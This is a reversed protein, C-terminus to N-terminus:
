LVKWKLLFKKIKKTLPNKKEIQIEKLVKLFFIFAIKNRTLFKSFFLKYKQYYLDYYKMIEDFSDDEGMNKIREIDDNNIILQNIETM